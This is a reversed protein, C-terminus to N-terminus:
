AAAKFPDRSIPKVTREIIPDAFFRAVELSDGFRKLLNRNRTPDQNFKRAFAQSAIAGRNFWIGHKGDDEKETKVNLTLASAERLELATPTGFVPIVEFKYTTDPDATYDSWLFSQVPFENTYFRRSKRPDNPDHANKPDPVVSQFVKLSRLWKPGAGNAGVVERQFAFGKLDKRRGEPCDLAILVTHIGSIARARFDREAKALERM